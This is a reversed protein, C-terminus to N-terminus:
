IKMGLTKQDKSKLNVIRSTVRTWRWAEVLNSTEVVKRHRFFGLFSVFRVSSTSRKIRDGPSPRM